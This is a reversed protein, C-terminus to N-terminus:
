LFREVLYAMWGSALAALVVYGIAIVVMFAVV